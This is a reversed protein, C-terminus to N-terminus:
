GSRYGILVPQYFGDRTGCSTFGAENMLELLRSLPVAYYAASTRVLETWAGTPSRRAWSLRATARPM